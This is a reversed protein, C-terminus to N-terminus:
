TNGVYLCAHVLRVTIGFHDFGSERDDIASLCAGVHKM